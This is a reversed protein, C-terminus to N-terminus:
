FWSQPISCPLTVIRVNRLFSLKYFCLKYLDYSDNCHHELCSPIKKPMFIGSWYFLNILWRVMLCSVTGHLETPVYIVVRFELDTWIETTCIYLYAPLAYILLEKFYLIVIRFFNSKVLNLEFYDWIKSKM